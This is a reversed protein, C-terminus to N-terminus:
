CTAFINSDAKYTKNQKNKAKRNIQNCCVAHPESTQVFAALANMYSSELVYTIMNQM